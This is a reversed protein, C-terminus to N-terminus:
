GFACPKSIGKSIGGAGLAGCCGAELAGGKLEEGAPAGAAGGTIGCACESCLAGEAFGYPAMGMFGGIGGSAAM